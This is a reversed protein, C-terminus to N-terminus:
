PETPWQRAGLLILRLQRGAADIVRATAEPADPPADLLAAATWVM